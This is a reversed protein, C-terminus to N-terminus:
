GEKKCGVDLKDAFGPLKVESAISIWFKAVEGVGLAIVQDVEQRRLQLLKQELVGIM